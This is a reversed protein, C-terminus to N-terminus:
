GVARKTQCKSGTTMSIGCRLVNKVAPLRFQVIIAIPPYPPTLLIL